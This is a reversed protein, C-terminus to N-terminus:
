CAVMSPVKIPIEVKLGAAGTNIALFCPFLALALKNAEEGGNQTRKGIMKNTEQKWSGELAM